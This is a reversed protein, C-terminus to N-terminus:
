FGLTMYTPYTPLAPPPAHKRATLARQEATPVASDEPRELEDAPVARTTLTDAQAIAHQLDLPMMPPEDRASSELATGAEPAAPAEIAHEDARASACGAGGLAAVAVLGGVWHPARAPEPRFIAEHTRADRRIALCVRSTARAVRAEAQARTLRSLDVVTRECRACFRGEGLRPMTEWREECPNRIEIPM